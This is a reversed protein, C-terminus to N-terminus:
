GRKARDHAAEQCLLWDVREAIEQYHEPVTEYIARHFARVTGGMMGKVIADVEDRTFHQRIRNRRLFRFRNLM